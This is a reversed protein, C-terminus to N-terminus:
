RRQFTKHSSKLWKWVAIFARRSCMENLPKFVYFLLFVDQFLMEKNLKHTTCHTKSILLWSNSAKWTGAHLFIFVLCWLHETHLIKTKLFFKKKRVCVFIVPLEWIHENVTWGFVFIRNSRNINFQKRLPWYSKEHQKSWLPVKLFFFVGRAHKGINLSFVECQFFVETTFDM